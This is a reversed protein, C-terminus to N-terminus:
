AATREMAKRRITTSKRVEKLVSPNQKPSFAMKTIANNVRREAQLQKTLRHITALRREALSRYQDRTM